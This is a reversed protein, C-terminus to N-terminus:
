CLAAVSKGDRTPAVAIEVEVARAALGSQAGRLHQWTWYAWGSPAGTRLHHESIKRYRALHEAVRQREPGGQGGLVVDNIASSPMFHRTNRVSVYAAMMTHDPAHEISGEILGLLMSVSTGRKLDGALIEDVIDDRLAWLQHRFLSHQVSPVQILIVYVFLIPGVVAMATVLMTTGTM